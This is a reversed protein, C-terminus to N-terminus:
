LKYVVALAAGKSGIQLRRNKEKACGVSGVITAISGGIISLGGVLIAGGGFVQGIAMGWQDVQNNNEVYQILAIGAAVNLTGGVVFGLGMYKGKCFNRKSKYPLHNEQKIRFNTYFNRQEESLSNSNRSQSNNSDLLLDNERQMNLHVNCYIISDSTGQLHMLSQATSSMMGVFFLVVTQLYIWKM